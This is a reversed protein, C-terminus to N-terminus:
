DYVRRRNDNPTWETQRRVVYVGEELTLTKHEEHVLQTKGDSKVYMTPVSGRWEPTDVLVTGGVIRHAHGSLEGKAIIGSTEEKTKSTQRYHDVKELLVDGHRYIIKM